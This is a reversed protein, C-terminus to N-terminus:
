RVKLKSKVCLQDNKSVFLQNFLIYIRNIESTLSASSITLSVFIFLNIFTFYMLNYMFFPELQSFLLSYFQSSFCVINLNLNIFLANSWFEQNIQNIETYIKNLNLWIQMVRGFRVKKKSNIIQDLKNHYHKTKLKLYLCILHFYILYLWFGTQYVAVIITILINWPIAILFFDIWDFYILPFITLAIYSIIATVYIDIKIFTFLM